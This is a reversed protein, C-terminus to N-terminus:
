LGYDKAIQPTLYMFCAEDNDVVGTLFGFRLMVLKVRALPPLPPPPPPGCLTESGRNKCKTAGGGTKGSDIINGTGLQKKVVLM